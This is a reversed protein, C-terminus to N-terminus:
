LGGVDDWSVEILNEVQEQKVLERLKKLIDSQSLHKVSPWSEAMFTQFVQWGFKDHFQAIIEDKLPHEGDFNDFIM